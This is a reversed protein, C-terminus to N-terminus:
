RCARTSSTSPTPTSRRAPVVVAVALALLAPVWPLRRVLVHSRLRDPLPAVRSSLAWAGGDGGSAGRRALLVGGLVIGFLVFEM